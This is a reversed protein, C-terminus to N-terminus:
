AAEVATRRPMRPTGATQRLYEGDPGGPFEPTPAGEHRPEHMTVSTEQAGDGSGTTFAGAMRGRVPPVPTERGTTGV